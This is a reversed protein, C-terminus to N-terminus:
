RIHEKVFEIAEESSSTILVPCECSILWAVVDDQHASTNHEKGVRKFEIYVSKGGPIPVLRDCWGRNGAAKLKASRFGLKKLERVFRKEIDSELEDPDHQKTM